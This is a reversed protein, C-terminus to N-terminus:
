DGHRRALDAAKQFAQQVMAKTTYPHDNWYPIAGGCGAVNALAMRAKGETMDGGGLTYCAAKIAGLSCWAGAESSHPSLVAKGKSSVRAFSGKCFTDTYSFVDACAQLVESTKTTM